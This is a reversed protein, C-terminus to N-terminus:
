IDLATIGAHSVHYATQPVTETAAIGCSERQSHPSFKTVNRKNREPSQLMFLDQYQVLFCLIEHHGQPNLTPIVFSVVYKPRLSVVIIATEAQTGCTASSLTLPKHALVTQSPQYWSVPDSYLLRLLSSNSGCQSSGVVPQRLRGSDGAMGPFFSIERPVMM